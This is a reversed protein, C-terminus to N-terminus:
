IKQERKQKLISDKYEKNDQVKKLKEILNEIKNKLNSIQDSSNNIEAIKDKNRFFQKVSSNFDERYKLVKEYKEKFISVAEKFDPINEGFSFNFEENKQTKEPLIALIKQINQKKGYPASILGWTRPNDGFINESDKTFYINEQENVDFLNTLTDKSLVDEAKPLDKSINEVASNNNSSVIIGLKKLEDPIKYYNRYYPNTTNTRILELDTSNLDAIIKAKKVITDAIIEKLLTTKGTGPPGNVSFINPSYDKSTCINIATAQMLSPNYKSPWKGIPMNKPLTIEELFEKNDDIKQRNKNEKPYIINSLLSDDKLNVKAITELDRTYFDMQCFSSENPDEEENSKFLKLYFSKKLIKEDLSNAFQSLQADYDLAPDIVTYLRAKKTIGLQQTIQQSGAIISGLLPVSAEKTSFLDFKIQLEEGEYLETKQSYSLVAEGIVYGNDDSIRYLDGNAQKEKIVRM